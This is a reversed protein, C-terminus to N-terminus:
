SAFGAYLKYTISDAKFFQNAKIFSVNGIANFEKTAQNFTVKDAKLVGNNLTVKVNGEAVNIRGEEEQYQIDSEIDVSFKQEEDTNKAILKDFLKDIRINNVKLYSEFKNKSSITSVLLDHSTKDKRFTNRNKNTKCSNDFCFATVM